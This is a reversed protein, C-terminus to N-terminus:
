LDRHATRFSNLHVPLAQLTEQISTEISKPNLMSEWSLFGWVLIVPCLIVRPPESTNLAVALVLTESYHWIVNTGVPLIQEPVSHHKYIRLVYIRLSLLTLQLIYQSTVQHHQRIWGEKHLFCCGFCHKLIMSRSDHSGRWSVIILIYSVKRKNKPIRFLNPGMSLFMIQIPRTTRHRKLPLVLASSCPLNTVMGTGTRVDPTVNRHKWHRTALFEGTLVLVLPIKRCQKKNEMQQTTHHRQRVKM